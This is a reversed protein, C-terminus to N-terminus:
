IELLVIIVLLKKKYINYVLKILLFKKLLYTILLLKSKYKQSIYVKIVLYLIKNKIKILKKINFIKLVLKIIYVEQLKKFDM